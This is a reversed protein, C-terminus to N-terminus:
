FKCSICPACEQRCQAETPPEVHFARAAAVDLELFSNDVLDRFRSNYEEETLHRRILQIVTSVETQYTVIATSQLADFDSKLIRLLYLMRGRCNQASGDCASHNECGSTALMMIANLSNQVRACYSRRCRYCRALMKGHKAASVTADKLSIAPFLRSWVQEENEEQPRNGLFLGTLILVVLHLLVNFM